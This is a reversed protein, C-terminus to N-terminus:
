PPDLDQPDPFQPRPQPAPRPQPPMSRLPGLPLAPSRLQGTLHRYLDDYATPLPYHTFPRLVLPIDQATGEALLVPIVKYNRAGAEYLKQKVIWAEWTAGQGVGPTEKGEFRRSYTPTCVLLTFDAEVIQQQAWLPWGEPPHAVYQDLTADLGEARLRDALALVRDRHADSDHSYSIFVRTTM